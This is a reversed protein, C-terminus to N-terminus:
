AAALGAAGASGTRGRRELSLRAAACSRFDEIVSEKGKIHWRDLQPWRYLAMAQVKQANQRNWRDIEAYAAQIWGRNVNEWPGGQDTETVYVPLHRMNVPIAHM